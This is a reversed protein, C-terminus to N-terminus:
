LTSTGGDLITDYENPNNNPTAWTTSDGGEEIYAATGNNIATISSWRNGMWIYTAGNIAVYEQGLAPSNPFTITTM